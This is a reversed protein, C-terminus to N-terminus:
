ACRYTKELLHVPCKAQANHELRLYLDLLKRCWIGFRIPTNVLREGEHAPRYRRNYAVLKAHYSNYAKQKAHLNQVTASADDRSAGKPMNEWQAELEVVLALAEAQAPDLNGATEATHTVNGERREPFGHKGW